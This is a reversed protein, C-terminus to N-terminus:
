NENLAKQELSAFIYKKDEIKFNLRITSSRNSNNMSAIISRRGFPPITTNQWSLGTCGCDASAEVQLPEPRGNYLTFTHSLTKTKQTVEQTSFQYHNDPIYIGEVSRVAAIRPQLPGALLLTLVGGFVLLQGLRKTNRRPASTFHSKAKLSSATM